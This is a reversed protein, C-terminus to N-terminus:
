LEREYKLICDILDAFSGHRIHRLLKDTARLAQILTENTILGQEVADAAEDLDVVHVSNDAEIIVDILLDEFIIDNGNHKETIIDCYWRSFSGDAKYHKSIKFGEKRYYASIGSAFDERPRFTKWATIIVDDSFYLVKDDGLEKCEDPIFRRRYLKVDSNM